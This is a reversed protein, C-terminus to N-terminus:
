QSIPQQHQLVSYNDPLTQLKNDLSVIDDQLVVSVSTVQVNGCSPLKNQHWKGKLHQFACSANFSLNHCKHNVPRRHYCTPSNNTTYSNVTMQCACFTTLTVQAPKLAMRPIITFPVTTTWETILGKISQKHPTSINFSNQVNHQPIVVHTKHSLKINAQWLSNNQLKQSSFLLNSANWAKL